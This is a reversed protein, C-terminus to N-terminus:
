NPRYILYKWESSGKTQKKKMVVDHLGTWGIIM